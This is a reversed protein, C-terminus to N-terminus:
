RIYRSTQAFGYYGNYFIHMIMRFYFGNMIDYSFVSESEMLELHSVENEIIICLVLMWFLIGAIFCVAGLHGCM